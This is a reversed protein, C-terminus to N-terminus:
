SLGFRKKVLNVLDTASDTVDQHAQLQIAAANAASAQASNLATQATVYDADASTATDIKTDADNIIDQETPSPTTPPTSPTTSDAMRRTEQKFYHQFFRKLYAALTQIL